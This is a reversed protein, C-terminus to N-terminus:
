QQPKPVRHQTESCVDRARFRQPSVQLGGLGFVSRARYDYYLVIRAEAGVIPLGLQFPSMQNTSIVLDRVASRVSAMTRDKGDVSVIEIEAYQVAGGGTNQIVGEVRLSDPGPRTCNWYVTVEATSVRHAFVAPPYIPPQTQTPPLGDHIACAVAGMGLLAAAWFARKM